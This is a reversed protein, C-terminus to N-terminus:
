LRRAAPSRNTYVMFRSRCFLYNGTLCFMSEKEIADRCLPNLYILQVRRPANEVSARINGIVAQMVERDFPNYFFFVSVDDPILYRAADENVISIQARSRSKQRYIEMNRAAIACLEKAFEVGVIRAFGHEAALLL